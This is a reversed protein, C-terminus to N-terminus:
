TSSLFPDRGTQRRYELPIRRRPVLGLKMRLADSHARVTRVSIGLEAAIERNSRGAAILSIVELQRGTFNDNRAEPDRPSEAVAMRDSRAM